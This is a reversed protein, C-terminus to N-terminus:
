NKLVGEGFLFVLIAFSMVIASIVNAWMARRINREQIKLSEKQAFTQDLACKESLTIVSSCRDCRLLSTWPKNNPGGSKDADIHFKFDHNCEDFNTKAM